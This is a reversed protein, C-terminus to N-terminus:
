LPACIAPVGSCDSKFPSHWEQTGALLKRRRTQVSMLLSQKASLPPCLEASVFM